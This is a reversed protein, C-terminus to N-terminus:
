FSVLSSIFLKPSGLSGKKVRIIGSVHIIGGFGDLAENESIQIAHAGSLMEKFDSINQVFYKALFGLFIPFCPIGIRAADTQQSVKSSIPPPPHGHDSSTETM